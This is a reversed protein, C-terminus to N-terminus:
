KNREQKQLQALRRNGDIIGKNLGSIGSWRQIIFYLVMWGGFVYGFLSWGAVYFIVPMVIILFLPSIIRSIIAGIEVGIPAWKGKGMILQLILGLPFFLVTFIWISISYIISPVTVFLAVSAVMLVNAM